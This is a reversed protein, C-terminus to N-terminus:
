WYSGVRSRGLYPRGSWSTWPEGREQARKWGIDFSPKEQPRRFVPQWEQKAPDFRWSYAGDPLMESPPPTGAGLTPILHNRFAWMLEPIAQDEIREKTDKGPVPALGTPTRVFGLDAIPHPEQWPRGPSTVTLKQPEEVFHHSAPTGLLGNREIDAQGPIVQDKKQPLGVTPSQNLRAIQSRLLDNELEARQLTLDNLRAAVFEDPTRTADISRAFQSAADGLGRLAGGYDKRGGYDGPIFTSPSYTPLQAGLAYLPHIGARKADEVRWRIGNQAFERQLQMNQANINEQARLGSKSGGGFLSGVSGIGSLVSGIGTLTAPDM